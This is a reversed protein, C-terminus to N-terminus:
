FEVWGTLIYKTNSLPPNGRHTHTFHAPFITLRGAQPKVRMAHYLFETEGGEDVDNLYLIYALLRDSCHKSQTEYHWIHYGEGVETKQVKSTYISHPDTDTLIQYKNRYETYCRNWFIDNFVEGTMHGFANGKIESSGDFETIFTNSCVSMDDKSLKNAESRGHSFGANHLADFDAILKNCYGVDFADDFIGVFNKFEVNM